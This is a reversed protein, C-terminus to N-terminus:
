ETVHAHEGPATRGFVAATGGGPILSAFVALPAPMGGGTDGSGGEGTNNLWTLTRAPQPAALCQSPAPSSAANWAGLPSAISESPVSYTASEPVFICICISLISTYVYM